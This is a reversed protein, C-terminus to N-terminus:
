CSCFLTNTLSLVSFWELDYRSFKLHKFHIGLVNLVSDLFRNLLSVLLFTFFSVGHAFHELLRLWLQGRICCLSTLKHLYSCFNLERDLYIYM